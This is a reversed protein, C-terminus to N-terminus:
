VDWTTKEGSKQVMLLILERQRQLRWGILIAWDMLMGGGMRLLRLVLDVFYFVLVVLLVVVEFWWFFVSFFVGNWWDNTFCPNIMDSITDLMQMLLGGLLFRPLYDTLPIGSGWRCALHTSCRTTSFVNGEELLIFYVNVVMWANGKTGVTCTYICVYAYMEHAHQMVVLLGKNGWRWWTCTRCRGWSDNRNM